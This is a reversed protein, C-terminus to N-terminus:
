MSFSINERKLTRAKQGDREIYEVSMRIRNRGPINLLLDLGGPVELTSFTSSDRVLKGTYYVEIPTENIWVKHIRVMLNRETKGSTYLFLRLTSEDGKAANIVAMRVLFSDLALIDSPKGKREWRKVNEKGQPLFTVEGHFVDEDYLNEASYVWLDAVVETLVWDSMYRAASEVVVQQSSTAGPEVLDAFFTEVLIGDILVYDISVMLADPSQNTFSFQLTNGYLEDMELGQFGISFVKYDLKLVPDSEACAIGTLLLITIILAFLQRRIM